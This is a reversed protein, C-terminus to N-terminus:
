FLLKSTNYIQTTGCYIFDKSVSVEFSYKMLKKTTNTNMWPQKAVELNIKTGSPVNGTFFFQVHFYSESTDVIKYSFEKEQLGQVFFTLYDKPSKSFKEVFSKAETKFDFKFISPFETKLLDPTIGIIKECSKSNM